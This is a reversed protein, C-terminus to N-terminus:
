WNIKNDYPQIKSSANHNHLTLFCHGYDIVKVSGGSREIVDALSRHGHKYIFLCHPHYLSLFMTYKREPEPVNNEYIKLTKVDFKYPRFALLKPSTCDKFEQNIIKIFDHSVLDDSDLRTQITYPLQHDFPAVSRSSSTRQEHLNGAYYSKTDAMFTKIKGSLQEIRHKHIDNCLIVIDFNDDSQNLLRPLVMTRFFALRWEFEPCDPYQLRIVVAHSKEM